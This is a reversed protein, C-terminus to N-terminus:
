GGGMAAGAPPRWRPMPRQCGPVWEDRDPLGAATLVGSLIELRIEASCQRAGESFAECLGAAIALNAFLTGVYVAIGGDGDCASCEYMAHADSTRPLACDFYVLSSEFDIV